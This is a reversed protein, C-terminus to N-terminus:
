ALDLPLTTITTGDAVTVLLFGILPTNTDVHIIIDWQKIGDRIDEGNAPYTGATFFYNADDVTAIADATSYIFVSRPGAQTICQFNRTDLAM